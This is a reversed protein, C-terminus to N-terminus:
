KVMKGMLRFLSVLQGTPEPPDTEESDSDPVDLWLPYYDGEASASVSDAYFRM